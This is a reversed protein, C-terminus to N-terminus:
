VGLGGYRFFPFREVERLVRYKLNQVEKENWGMAKAIMASYEAVRVSHGKTYSDKAEIM